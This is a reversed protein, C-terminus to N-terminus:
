PQNICFACKNLKEKRSKWDPMHRAVHAYFRDSHNAELFHCFEHVTVYEACEKPAALLQKNLTIVGKAPICSGWRSKMDRIKLCPYQIGYPEFDPYYRDILEKFYKECQKNWFDNVAKRRLAFSHANILSLRLIEGDLYANAEGETVCLTIERGMYMFKEGTIYEGHKATDAARIKKRAKEIFDAQSLVFADVRDTPVYSPASVAVEGNPRVRLNINKVKKRTLIYKIGGTERISM